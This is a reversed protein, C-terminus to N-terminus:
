SKGLVHDVVWCGRVHVGNTDRCHNLIDDNECGADQLADALIPMRDFARDQYIGQALSLVDSTLWPLPLTVPRFPNGFVCRLLCPQHQSLAKFISAEDQDGDEAAQRDMEAPCLWTIQHPHHDVTSRVLSAADALYGYGDYDIWERRAHKRAEAVSLESVTGDAYSEGVEVVRFCENCQLLPAVSKCCACAFLRLKRDSAQARLFELMPMPETAALWEAESM